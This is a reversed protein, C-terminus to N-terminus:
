RGQKICKLVISQNGRTVHIFYVGPRYLNGFDISGNSMTIRQEILKGSIDVVRFQIAEVRNSQSNLRFFNSTPNPLLSVTLGAKNNSVGDVINNDGSVSGLPSAPCIVTVTFSCTKETAQVIRYTVTTTGKNFIRRSATGNGSGVTAGSLSYSIGFTGSAPSVTPDIGTVTATCKGPDSPVIKSLPCTLTVAFSGLQYAATVGISPGFDYSGSAYLRHGSLVIQSIRSPGSPITTVQKGGSGFGPDLTGDLRLRALAFQWGNAFGGVVSKGDPQVVVSTAEDQQAYSITVIGDGSYTNDLNGNINYRAVLFSTNLETRLAGAVVIKGDGQLAVSQADNQWGLLFNKVQRGDGSFTNDPTGNTNYRALAFYSTLTSDLSSGVALIKGDKQIVLDNAIDDADFNTTLRGDFSFTNDLTGNTNFRVVAFDSMFSTPNILGGAVVIRGDPQVAISTIYSAVGFNTLVKGINNFTIDLSGNTNYRSVAVRGNSEGAVLIKGDSQIAIATGVDNNGFNTILRGNYDFSNDPVGNPFFRAVAFDFNGPSGETKHQVVGAAIFKGDAQVAACTFFVPADTPLFSLLLGDSSFAGDLVGATNYCTLGLDYNSDNFSEGALLIKGGAQILVSYAADYLGFDKQQKGDGSFTLDLSGNTNYRAVGYNQTVNTAIGAVVLKGDSQLALAFAADHDSSFDTTQKGDTSFTNDPLGGSTYRAVAFNGNGAIDGSEFATGAAVIKGDPQIAIASGYDDFGFDTTQKGDGSFTNDLIGTTTYRALAFNLSGTVPDEALGVVVIKGDSQIAVGHAEDFFGFSTVQKGDGSFTNDPSGNTNYRALGFDVGAAGAVVIKGDAQIAVGFAMDYFGFDTIRTGNIGFTSDVQGNTKFRVVAFDGDVLYTNGAVVLKGDSQFKADKFGVNIVKTFGGSGYSPDLTGNSFYRAVVGQDFSLSIIALIKGDAQQLLKQGSESQINGMVFSSTQIGDQDYAPDLQGAQSFCFMKVGILLFLLAYKRM